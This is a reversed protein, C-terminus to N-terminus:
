DTVCMSEIGECASISATDREYSISSCACCVIMRHLTYDALHMLLHM